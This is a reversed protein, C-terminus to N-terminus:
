TKAYHGGQGLISLFGEMTLGNFYWGIDVGTLASRMSDDEFCCGKLKASIEKTDGNGFYDGFFSINEIIGKKTVDIYIELKGCGEVRRSKQITYAPSAGYNWEWRRYVEDRLKRVALEEEQALVYTQMDNERFMFDRLADRFEIVSIDKRLYPKINTVRSKVSKIGKSEIKDKSVQLANAVLQLDSDFMITGHHMIRGKKMYQANGSFKKGDITMDNRGSIEVEVGMTALARAVPKCFLSFDFHSGENDDTIFTFCLNGLDHYVAGGGSLRRVVTIGKEKVYATNIEAITNQHKGVVITNNNQWLMFYSCSRDLCDFVYQELALNYYPDTSNSQIYYM